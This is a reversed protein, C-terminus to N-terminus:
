SDLLGKFARPLAEVIDSAILSHRGKEEAAINGALGHLYAGVISAGTPSLGQGVLSSIVGTLVDGTGGTAM